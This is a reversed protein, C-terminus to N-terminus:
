NPGRRRRGVVEPKGGGYKPVVRSCSSVRVCARTGSSWRRLVDFLPYEFSVSLAGLLNLPGSESQGARGTNDRTLYRQLEDVRLHNASAASAQSLTRSM